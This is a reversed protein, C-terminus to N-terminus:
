IDFRISIPELSFSCQFITDILIQNQKNFYFFIGEARFRSPKKKATLARQKVGPQKWEVSQFSFEMDM